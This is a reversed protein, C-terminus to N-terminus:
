EVNGAIRLAECIKKRSRKRANSPKEDRRGDDLLLPSM